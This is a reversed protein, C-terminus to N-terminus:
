NYHQKNNENMIMEFALKGIEKMLPILAGFSLSLIVTGTIYENGKKLIETAFIM